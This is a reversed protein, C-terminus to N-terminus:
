EDAVQEAIDIVEDPFGMQEALRIGYLTQTQTGFTAKFRMGDLNDETARCIAKGESTATSRGLEDILLLSHQDYNQLIYAIDHM